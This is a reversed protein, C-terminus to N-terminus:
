VIHEIYKGILCLLVCLILDLVNKLGSSHPSEDESEMM